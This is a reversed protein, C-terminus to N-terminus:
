SPLAEALKSFWQSIKKAEQKSLFVQGEGDGLKFRVEGYDESKNKLAVYNRVSLEIDHDTPSLQLFIPPKKM